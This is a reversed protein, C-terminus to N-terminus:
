ERFNGKPVKDTLGWFWAVRDCSAVPEQVGEWWGPQLHSPGPSITLEEWGLVHSIIKQVLWGM